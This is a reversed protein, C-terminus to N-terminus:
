PKFISRITPPKGNEFEALFIEGHQIYKEGGVRLSENKIPLEKIMAKVMMIPDAHSVVIIAKGNHVKIIRSIFKRMREALDEVTEGIIDSGFHAFVNFNISALYPFPQGQLSSKIELLNRSFHISSLKLKDKIIKASQRTRLLSSAYIVDIHKDVLYNATQGIELKGKQSLGFKPSRGYWINKPNKVEGHRVFYINTIM